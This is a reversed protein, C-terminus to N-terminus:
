SLCTCLWRFPLEPSCYRHYSHWPRQVQSHNREHRQLSSTLREARALPLSKCTNSLEAFGIRRNGIDWNTYYYKLLSAGVIQEYGNAANILMQCLSEDHDFPGVSLEKSPITLNFMQNEDDRFSFDIIAPLTDVESCPLEYAGPEM